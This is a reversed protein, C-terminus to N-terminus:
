SSGQNHKPKFKGGGQGSLHSQLQLCPSCSTIHAQCLETVEQPSQQGLKYEPEQGHKSIGSTEIERPSSKGQSKGSKKGMGEQSQGRQTPTQGQAAPPSSQLVMHYSVISNLLGTCCTEYGRQCTKNRRNQPPSVRVVGLKSLALCLSAMEAANPIGRHASFQQM